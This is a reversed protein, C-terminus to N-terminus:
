SNIYHHLTKISFIIFFIKQYTLSFGLLHLTILYKHIPLEIDDSWISSNSTIKIFIWISMKMFSSLSINLNIHFVLYLSLCSRKSSHIKCLTSKICSCHFLISNLIQPLLVNINDQHIVILLNNYHIIFWYM